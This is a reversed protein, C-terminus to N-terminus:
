ISSVTLTVTGTYTGGATTPDTIVADAKLVHNAVDHSVGATTDFTTGSGDLSIIPTITSTGSVLNTTTATVRIQGNSVLTYEDSGSYNVADTSTLYFDDLNSLSAYLPLIMTMVASDTGLDEASVQTALCTAIAALLYKINKM